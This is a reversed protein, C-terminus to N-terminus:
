RRTRRVSARPEASEVRVKPERSKEAVQSRRTTRSSSEKAQEKKTVTRRVSSKKPQEPAVSDVQTTDEPIKVKWIGEEFDTLQKEIRKQEKVKASDTKCYEDLTRGQMNNTKYITGQYLNMSFFDAATMNTANNYNSAMVPLRGLYAELDEYKMWFLPRPASAEGFDDNDILIPCLAVVRTRYTGTRQDLAVSEKVYYRKVQASPVDNDAVSYKGDKEEYYIYYRDLLEKVDTIRDKAAFSENGDLKYNYAPVRGTLMLRFLYTFLNCQNGVPEVPYYLAANEDKTLDLQRYIDRRWVVDEPVEQAIPFMLAARDSAQVRTSRGQAEANSTTTRRKAPQAQAGVGLTAALMIMFIRKMCM